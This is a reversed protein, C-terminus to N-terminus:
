LVGEGSRRVFGRLESSGSLSLWLWLFRVQPKSSIRGTMQLQEAIELRTYLWMYVVMYRGDGLRRLESVKAYDQGRQM